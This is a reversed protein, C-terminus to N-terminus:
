QQLQYVLAGPVGNTMGVATLISDFSFVLDIMIIQLLVSQFSKTAAKSIGKEEGQHRSKESKAPARTFLSCVLLLIISQGTIGSVVVKFRYYVLTRENSDISQNWIFPL